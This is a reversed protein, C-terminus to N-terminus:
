IQIFRKIMMFVSMVLYILVEWMYIMYPGLNPPFLIPKQTQDGVYSLMESINIISERMPSFCM